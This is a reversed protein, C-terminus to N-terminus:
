GLLESLGLRDFLKKVSEPKEGQVTRLIESIIELRKAPDNKTAELRQSLKNATLAWKPMIRMTVYGAPCLPNKEPGCPVSARDFYKDKLSPRFLGCKLCERRYLTLQIRGGETPSFVEESVAVVETDDEAPQTEQFSNKFAEAIQEDLKPLQPEAPEAGETSVDSVRVVEREGESM